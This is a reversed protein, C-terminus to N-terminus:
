PRRHMTEMPPIDVPELRVQAVFHGILGTSQLLVLDGPQNAVVPRGITIHQPMQIPLIARRSVRVM